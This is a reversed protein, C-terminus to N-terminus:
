NSILCLQWQKQSTAPPNKEEAEAQSKLFVYRLM